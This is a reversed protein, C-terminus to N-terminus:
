FPLCVVFFLFHDNRGIICTNKGPSNVGCCEGAASVLMGGGDAACARGADGVRLGAWHVFM